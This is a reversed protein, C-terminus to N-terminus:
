GASTENVQHAVQITHSNVWSRCISTMTIGICSLIRTIAECPVQLAFTQALSGSAVLMMSLALVAILIKKM